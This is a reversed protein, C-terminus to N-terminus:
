FPKEEGDPSRKEVYVGSARVLTKIQEVKEEEPVNSQTIMWIQQITARRQFNTERYSKALTEWNAQLEVM